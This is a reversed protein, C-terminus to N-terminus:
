DGGQGGIPDIAVTLFEGSVTDYVWTITGGVSHNVSTLRNIADYGFTATADPYTAGTRRNLADYTSIAIM